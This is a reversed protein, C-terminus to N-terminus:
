MANNTAGSPTNAIRILRFGCPEEATTEIAVVNGIKHEDLRSVFDALMSVTLDVNPIKRGTDVLKAFLDNVTVEKGVYVMVGLTSAKRSRLGFFAVTNAEPVPVVFDGAAAAAESPDFAVLLKKTTKPQSTAM